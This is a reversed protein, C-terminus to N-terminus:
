QIYISTMALTTTCLAVHQNETCFAIRDDQREMGRRITDIVFSSSPNRDAINDLLRGFSLRALDFARSTMSSRDQACYLLIEQTKEGIRRENVETWDVAM